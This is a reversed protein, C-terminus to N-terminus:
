SPRSAVFSTLFDVFTRQMQLFDATELIALPQGVPLSAQFDLLEQSCGADHLLVFDRLQAVTEHKQTPVDIRERQGGPAAVLVPSLQRFGEGAETCTGDASRLVTTLAGCGQQLFM